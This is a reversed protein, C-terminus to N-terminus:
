DLSSNSAPIRPCTNESLYEQVPEEVRGGRALLKGVDVM